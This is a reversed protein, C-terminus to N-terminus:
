VVVLLFLGVDAGCGLKDFQSIATGPLHLEMVLNYRLVESTHLAVAVAQHMCHMVVYPSSFLVFDSVSQFVAELYIYAVVPGHEWAPYHKLSAPIHM